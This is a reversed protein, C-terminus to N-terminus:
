RLNENGRTIDRLVDGSRTHLRAAGPVHLEDHVASQDHTCHVPRVDLYFLRNALMVHERKARLRILDRRNSALHRVVWWFNIRTKVAGHSHNAGADEALRVVSRVVLEQVGDIRPFVDVEGRM